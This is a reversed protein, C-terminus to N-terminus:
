KILIKNQWVVTVQINLYNKYFNWCIVNLSYQLKSFKIIIEAPIRM